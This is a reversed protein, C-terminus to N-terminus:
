RRGAAVAAAAGGLGAAATVALRRARVGRPAPPRAGHYPAEPPGDRYGDPGHERAMKIVQAVHLAGRGTGAQEIQTKCSFGDAVVLTDQPADRVAPLLAQEGCAMSIDHHGAEFGWSGALGCCGGSVQEVEVGMRELLEQESDMGGTAKHHCHGWLLARRDLRPVDLEHEQVFEGFHRANGTLRRADDDHPLMGALEDKFVALCSPEMGVIPTGARIDDQLTRLTRRLYREALDLFGYDYLPRGCCVHKDPMAVQWGAAELAEVCAVGVDTHLYNNFTDPWLVVRPGSPNRTGGRRRFWQQLTLPAFTPIERQQTMGAALRAAHSLPPTRAAFNVAEPLKSAVRAAQDILGFAYMYRDRWRRASKYHHHLFEAKLTPMDVDVPCDSTCGKCALCLDLAEHVEKSQWRDTIVEGQLMEFLLRARGRTTHMEERTVQFSPCMTQEPDPIRCKGAGICRLAAHAFDGKDLEYAFRVEPRWPNYQTGLKLHEDLRYPDVVKGPNMKWEPDWIRKFERMADLLEPGYQRDLLEARQQGDGHEGSLSGGYSTVLDAAEELFARYNKVGEATRLDFSIRSHICGQGFHGYLSPKYGYKDFLKRLDRLYPGVKDPPVASDEWGPWADPHGPV